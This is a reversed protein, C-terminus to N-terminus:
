AKTQLKCVPFSVFGGNMIPSKSEAERGKHPLLEM